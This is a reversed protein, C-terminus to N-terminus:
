AQAGNKAVGNSFKHYDSIQPFPPIARTGVLLRLETLIVKQETLLENMTIQENQSYFAGIRLSFAIIASNSKTLYEVLEQIRSHNNM